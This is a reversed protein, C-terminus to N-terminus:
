RSAGGGASMAPSVGTVMQDRAHAWRAGRMAYLRRLVEDREKACRLGDGSAGSSRGGCVEDGASSGAVGAEAVAVTPHAVGGEERLQEWRALLAM